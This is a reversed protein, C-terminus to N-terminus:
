DRKFMGNKHLLIEDACVDVLEDSIGTITTEIMMEKISIM